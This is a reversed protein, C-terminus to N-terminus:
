KGTTRGRRAGARLSLASRPRASRSAPRALPRAAGPRRRPAPPTEAARPAAAAQSGQAARKKPVYPESKRRIARTRNKEAEAQQAKPGPRYLILTKGIHGVPACSLRDCLSQLIEDRQSREAGAVHIKILEHAALSRDIEAVVSDSLGRDGILVVPRLAHAAARLARRQQSNLELTSM